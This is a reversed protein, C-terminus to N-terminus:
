RQNCLKQLLEIALDGKVLTYHQLKSESIESVRSNYIVCVMNKNQFLLLQDFHFSLFVVCVDNTFELEREYKWMTSECM